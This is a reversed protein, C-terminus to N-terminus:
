RTEVPGRVSASLGIRDLTECAAGSAALGPAVRELDSVRYTCAVDRWRRAQQRGEYGWAFTLVWVSTLVVVVLLKITVAVGPQFM